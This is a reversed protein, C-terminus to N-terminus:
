KVEIKQPLVTTEELFQTEYIRRYVGDRAFLQEHTGLEIIEGNDLVMIRNANKITSLRQAIIFCTRGEMAEDIAIQIERETNADVFSM